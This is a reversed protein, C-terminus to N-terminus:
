TNRFRRLPRGTNQAPASRDDGIPVEEVKTMLKAFYGLSEVIFRRITLIEIACINILAVKSIKNGGRCTEAIAAFCLKHLINLQFASIHFM